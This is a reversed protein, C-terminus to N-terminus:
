SLLDLKPTITETGQQDVSVSLEKIRVQGTYSFFYFLNIEANLIDGLAIEDFTPTKDPYLELDLTFRESSELNMYAELRASLESPTPVDKEALYIERRTYSKQLSGFDLTSEIVNGTGSGEAIGSNQLMSVAKAAFKKVNGGQGVSFPLLSTNFSGKYPYYSDFTIGTVRDNSDVTPNFAFDFGDIKDAIISLQTAIQAREVSMSRDVSVVPTGQTILLTGNTRSQTTNILDWAIETQEESVYNVLKDSYRDLFHALYDRCGVVINGRVDSYELDIDTIPGFWVVEGNRKIAIHNRWRVLNTTTAKPDQIALKFQASGIGNLRSFYTLDQFTEIIDVLEFQAGEVNLSYIEISYDM